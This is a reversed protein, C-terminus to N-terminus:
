QPRQPFTVSHVPRTCTIASSEQIIKQKLHNEAPNLEGTTKKERTQNIMNYRRKFKATFRSRKETRPRLETLELDTSENGLRPSREDFSLCNFSAGTGPGTDSGANSRGKRNVTATHQVKKQRSLKLLRAPYQQPM